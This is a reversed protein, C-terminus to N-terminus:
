RGHPEHWLSRWYRQDLDYSDVADHEIDFDELLIGYVKMERLYHRNPRFGPMDFRKIRGLAAKGKEISELLAEYDRDNRNKFVVIPKRNGLEDKETKSLMKIGGASSALPM